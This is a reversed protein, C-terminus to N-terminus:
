RRLCHWRNAKGDCALPGQASAQRCLPYCAAEPDPSGACRAALEWQVVGGRTREPNGQCGWILLSPAGNESSRTNSLLFHGFPHCTTKSWCGRFVACRGHQWAVPLTRVAANAASNM